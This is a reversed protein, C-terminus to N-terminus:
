PSRITMSQRSRLQRAIGQAGIRACGPASLKVLQARRPGKLFDRGRRHVLRHRRLRSRCRRRNERPMPAGQIRLGTFEVGGVAFPDDIGPGPFKVRGAATTINIGARSFVKGAVLGASWIFLLGRADPWAAPAQLLIDKLLFSIQGHYLDLPFSVHIAAPATATARVAKTSVPHKAVTPLWMFQCGTSM